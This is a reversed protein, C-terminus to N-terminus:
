LEKAKLKFVASGSGSLFFGQKLYVSMKPYFNACPTFLDNLQTNKFHLLEKSSCKKLEKSEILSKTFDFPMKDFEKYVKATECVINPFVWDLDLDEYEYEEIIEGCGSVNAAKFGSLFFAVDSGLEKAFERLNSASLKLNLTTNMMQLFCACDSSGGGLGACVPIHKILKLSKQRFLEELENQFGKKCLLFYAKKIINDECDFESIIEFGDTHKEDVLLLEDFLTDLIIFRSEILHYKRSDLGVLKLFINAKAYAKM